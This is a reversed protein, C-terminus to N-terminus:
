WRRRGLAATRQSSQCADEDDDEDDEEEEEEEDMMIASGALPTILRSSRTSRPARTVTRYVIRMM